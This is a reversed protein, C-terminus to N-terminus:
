GVEQWSASATSGCSEESLKNRRWDGPTQNEYRQFARALALYNTFGSRVAIEQLTLKSELMLEKANQIRLRMLYTSFNQDTEKKFLGSLYSASIQFHDAVQELSLSNELCHDCVYQEIRRMRWNMEEGPEEAAEDDALTRFRFRLQEMAERVSIDSLMMRDNEKQPAGRLAQAKYICNLLAYLLGHAQRIELHRSGQFNIRFVTSLQQEIKERSGEAAANLLVEEEAAGFRYRDTHTQVVNYDLVQDEPYLFHYEEVECANDYSLAMNERKEVTGISVQLLSLGRERIQEILHERWGDTNPERATNVIMLRRTPDTDLELLCFSEQEGLLMEVLSKEDSYQFLEPSAMDFVMVCVCPYPLELRFEELRRDFDDGLKEKHHLIGRLYREGLLRREGIRASELAKEQDSFLRDLSGEMDSVDPEPDNQKKRIWARVNNRPLILQWYVFLFGSVLILFIMLVIVVRLSRYANWLVSMFHASPMALILCLGYDEMDYTTLVSIGEGAAFRGNADFHTMGEPVGVIPRGQEGYLGVYGDGTMAPRICYRSIQDKSIGVVQVRRSGSYNPVTRASIISNRGLNGQVLVSNETIFEGETSVQLLARKWEEYTVDTGRYNDLYYLYADYYGTPTLVKESREFFVFLYSIMQYQAVRGPMSELFRSIDQRDESSAETLESLRAALPLTRLDYNLVLAEYLKEEVIKSYSKLIGKNYSDITDTFARDTLYLQLVGVLVSVVMIMLCITAKVRATPKLHNKM